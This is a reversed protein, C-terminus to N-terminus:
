KKFEKEDILCSWLYFENEHEYPSYIGEITRRDRHNRSNWAYTCSSSDYVYLLPLCLMHGYKHINELFPSFHWLWPTLTTICLQIQIESTFMSCSHWITMASFWSHWITVVIGFKYVVSCQIHILAITSASAHFLLWFLSYAVELANGANFFTVNQKEAQM